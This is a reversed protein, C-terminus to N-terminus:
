LDTPEAAEFTLAAPPAFETGELMAALLVSGMREYGRRTFHVHDRGAFPPAMEAWSVTSMAGGQFAVTDFFACGNELAVRWQVDIIAGTRPRDVWHGDPTAVPRDSPGVLMCSANPVTDRIRRVVQELQARYDDIPQNDDGSENTGYALVVLDPNRRALQERYMPDNWALQNRARSGNIGHVDVLAGPTEREAAVGFLRVPGTGLARLEIRHPGDTTRAVFYGTSRESASTRIREVREGDLIVDFAGGHPQNLYYIEFRAARSGPGSGPVTEVFATAGAERTEIAVGAVGFFQEDDSNGPSGVKLATWGGDLRAIRVGSHSYGRWPQSPLVFGHGADGVMTQLATRIYGTYIDAATHSAGYFLLRAQGRGERARVLAAHLGDMSHGDLDQLAIDVGPISPSYPSRLRPVPRPGTPLARSARQPRSPAIAVDAATLAPAVDRGRRVSSPDEAAGRFALSWTGLCLAVTIAVGFPSGLVRGAGRALRTRITEASETSSMPM